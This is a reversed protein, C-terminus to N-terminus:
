KGEVYDICAQVQETTINFSKFLVVLKEIKVGAKFHEYISECPIRTGKICPQGVQIDPSITIGSLSKPLRVYQYGKRTFEIRPNM